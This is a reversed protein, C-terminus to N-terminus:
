QDVEKEGAALAQRGLYIALLSWVAAIPTVLLAISGVGLALMALLNQSLAGVADGGRYVFSDVFSKAKYKQETPLLTFLIERAPKFLGYNLSRRLAQFVIIVGLTPAIALAAFGGLTLLPLGILITGVGFKMLLQRSIFLQLALTLVNSLLDINAFIQTRQANETAAAAVLQGQQFYAFTSTLGYFFIYGAIALIYPSSLTFRIGATWQSFKSDGHRGWQWQQVSYEPQNQQPLKDFAVDIKKMVHVAIELFVVSVLLLYSQGLLEIFQQAITSGFIAGITGGVAIMPFLRKSNKFAIGDSMFGWFLSILLMNIVSLWVYFAVGVYFLNEGPVTKLAVFFLILNFAIFRYAIPIFQSRKFKSVLAGIVPALVLLTLMTTIFLYPLDDASRSIGMTERIPRLIYYACLLLFFYVASLIVVKQEKKDLAFLQKFITPM